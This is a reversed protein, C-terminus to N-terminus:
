RTDTYKFEIVVTAQAWVGDTRSPGTTFWNEGRTVGDYLLLDGLRVGELVTRVDDALTAQLAQGADIPTFIQVFVRGRTEFKRSPASGMTAQQRTSDQIAVRVWAGLRGLADTTFAENDYTYPVFTAPDEPDVPDAPHLADWGTEWQQLIALRSESQNM